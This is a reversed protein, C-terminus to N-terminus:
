KAAYSFISGNKALTGIKLTKLLNQGSSYQGSFTKQLFDFIHNFVIFIKFSKDCIIKLGCGIENQQYQKQSGKTFFCFGLTTQYLPIKSFKAFNM